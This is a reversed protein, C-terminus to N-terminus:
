IKKIQVNTKSNYYFFIAIYGLIAVRETPTRFLIHMAHFILCIAVEQRKLMEFRVVVLKFNYYMYILLFIIGYSALLQFYQNNSRTGMNGIKAAKYYGVGSFPHNLFNKWANQINTVRVLNDFQEEQFDRQFRHILNSQSTLSILEESINTTVFFVLTSVLGVFFIARKANRNIVGQQWLHYIYYSIIIIATLFAGRSANIIILGILMLIITFKRFLHTGYFRRGNLQKVIFLLITFAFIFSVRNVHLAHGPRYDESQFAYGAFPDGSGGYSVEIYGLYGVYTILCILLGSYFAYDIVKYFIVRNLGFSVLLLFYIYIRIQPWLFHSYGNYPTDKIYLSNVEQLIVFGIVMLLFPTLYPIKHQRKEVKNTIIYLAFMVPIFVPMYKIPGLGTNIYILQSIFEPLEMIFSVFVFLIIKQLLSLSRKNAMNEVINGQIMQM